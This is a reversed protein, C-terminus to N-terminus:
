HVVVAHFGIFTSCRIPRISRKALLERFDSCDVKMVAIRDLAIDVDRQALPVIHELTPRRKCGIRDAQRAKPSVTSDSLGAVQPYFLRVRSNFRFRTRRSM